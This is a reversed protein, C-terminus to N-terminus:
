TGAGGLDKYFLFLRQLADAAVAGEEGGGSVKSLLVGAANRVAGAEGFYDLDDLDAALQPEGSLRLCTVAGALSHVILNDYLAMDEMSLLGSVEAWALVSGTHEPAISRVRAELAYIDEHSTLTVEGLKKWVHHGTRCREVQPTARSGAITVLLAEGGGGGGIDFRDTEPTGSYFTRANIENFGHWDGLALYSLGAKEARDPALQNHEEEGGSGFGTVSGHALGIRLADPPTTEQDMYASLDTLVHRRQLVAPLLWANEAEDILVAGPKGHFIVNEPLSGNRLLRSWLGDPTHADHNGPILHWRIDSFERMRELPQHLTLRAPTEHEYIDGAVLVHHVGHSRALLGLRHIVEVRQAQLAGQAVDGAFGFTRGVQWDSTHLFKM